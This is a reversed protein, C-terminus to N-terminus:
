IWVKQFIFNTYLPRDIIEEVNIISYLWGDSKEYLEKNVKEFNM